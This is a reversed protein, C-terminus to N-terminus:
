ANNKLSVRFVDDLECELANSWRWLELVVDHYRSKWTDRYQRESRGVVRAVQGDLLRQRGTGHCGGCVDRKIVGDAVAVVEAAGGCRKCVGTGLLEFLACKTLKRLLEEGQPIKWADAAALDVVRLYAEYFLVHELGQHGAYRYLALATAEESLGFLLGAAEVGALEPAGGRGGGDLKVAGATLKALLERGCM